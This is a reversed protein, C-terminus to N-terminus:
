PVEDPPAQASGHKSPMPRQWVDDDCANAEIRARDAAMEGAAAADDPDAISKLLPDDSPNHFMGLYAARGASAANSAEQPSAYAQLRGRSCHLLNHGRRMLERGRAIGEEHPTPKVQPVRISGDANFLAASSFPTAPAPAAISASMADDRRREPRPSLTASPTPENRAPALPPVPLAPEPLTTALLEVRIADSESPPPLHMLRALWIGFLLHALLAIAAASIKLARPWPRPARRANSLARERLAALWSDQDADAVSGARGSVDRNETM